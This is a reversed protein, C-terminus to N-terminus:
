FWSQPNRAFKVSITHYAYTNTPAIPSISVRFAADDTPNITLQAFGTGADIMENKANYFRCDFEVRSWPASSANTLIGSVFIKLEDRSIAWNMQSELVQLSNAYERGYQPKPYFTREVKAMFAYIGIAIAMMLPLLTVSFWIAPHSWSKLTLWQRCHPCVKATAQIGEACYPCRKKEM